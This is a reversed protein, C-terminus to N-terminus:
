FITDQVIWLLSMDNFFWQAIVAQDSANLLIRKLLAM